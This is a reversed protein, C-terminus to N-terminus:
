KVLRFFAAAQSPTVTASSAGDSGAVDTWAGGLTAASQLKIGAGGAWTIVVNGGSATIGGIKLGSAAAGPIGDATAGGLAAIEADGLTGNRIQVSNVLGGSTEGDEDTFLLATPQLAWRADFGEGLTQKNALVGDIYKSVTKDNLNFAFALRHWTDAVVKGQYQGSIGIGNAKNVFLDGDSANSPDTQFLGRWKADSSAPFMVDMILTYQNLKTGGGNPAAGHTMIYGQAKTAAGFSMVKAPKGGITADQFSTISATDGLYQLATGVTADLNGNFDWQGTVVTPVVLATGAKGGQFLSAAELPSLVRNWLAVEDLLGQGSVSNSDTYTGKGDQGLNIPLGSDPGNAVPGVDRADILDGDVFTSAKGNVDFTVVVHRWVAGNFYGGPSDYDRRAPQPEGKSRFNWQIRGDGATAVVWGVNSGSNWDKNGIFSPDGTWADLKAWFAVSFSNTGTLLNNGLTVYNFSSGDKASSFALAGSGVKGAAFTPAGVPTGNNGRGSLDSANGDFPLYALLGSRISSLDKLAEPVSVVVADSTVSGGANSAVLTYTGGQATTVGSLVLAANTAGPIDTGNLRWQLSVGPGTVTATLRGNQGAVITTAAPQATIQPPAVQTISYFGVNDIGFYWSGTGAQAFRLRVKSQNDAKPLRFLEVRKSEVPDDNIRASIFPALGAWESKAVGIFAGYNKGQAEGTIPDEYAAADGNVDTLTAVADVNGDADKKIDPGDIMYVVPLWTNGQDISYEVAGISDQNQEYISHFSLFIDKKGSLDVDPSIAYQIQNGGRVDSEAYLAKGIVLDTVKAGNVYAESVNLRRAAEWKGAAGISQIREKSIVVWDMYADSNPDDLDFTGSGGSSLNSLSWGAPSNGETASEFTEIWIPSPLTLSPYNAVVFTVKSTTTNPPTADDSFSIEYSNTSKPALLVTRALTVTTNTTTSVVTPTAAVGNFTLKVSAPNVKTAQHNIVVEVPALPAVNIANPAPSQTGISAITPEVIKTLSVGDLGSTYIRAVESASLERRWLGLDDIGTNGHSVSGGDTYAGTGDNGINLALGAADTDITSPTAGAPRADKANLLQGNIYTTIKGDRKVTMAVHVWKGEPFQGASSDFDQRPTAEEKYNWQVRRDNDTALVFGLNGGSGWNKNGFIAPDGSFANLQVWMAVSFDTADGFLVDPATGLTVFNAFSGDKANSCFVAKGLLGTGYTPEGVATGNNGKGSADTANGDFALHSVLGDKLAAQVATSTMGTALALAAALSTRRIYNM